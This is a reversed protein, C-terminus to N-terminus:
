NWRAHTPRAQELADEINVDFLARATTAAQLGDSADLVRLEDDIDGVV